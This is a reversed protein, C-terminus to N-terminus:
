MYLDIALIISLDTKRGENKLNTCWTMLTIIAKEKGAGNIMRKGVGMM